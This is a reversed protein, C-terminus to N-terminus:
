PFNTGFNRHAWVSRHSSMCEGVRISIPKEHHQHGMLGLSSCTHNRTSHLLDKPDCVLELGFAPLVFHFALEKLDYATGTRGDVSGESLDGKQLVILGDVIKKAFAFKVLFLVFDLVFGLSPAGRYRVHVDDREGRGRLDWCIGVGRGGWRGVRELVLM